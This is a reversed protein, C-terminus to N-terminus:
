IMIMYKWVVSGKRLREIHCKVDCKKVMLLVLGVNVDLKMKNNRSKEFVKWIIEIILMKFIICLPEAM